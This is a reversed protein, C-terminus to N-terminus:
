GPAKALLGDREWVAAERDFPKPPALWLMARTLRKLTAPSAPELGKAVAVMDDFVGNCHLALDCGACHYTGTRKEANLPSTFPAETGERRLVAYQEPSLRARWEVDSLELPAIQASGAAAAPAAAPAAVLATLTSLFNRRTM